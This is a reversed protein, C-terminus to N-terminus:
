PSCPEPCYLMPCPESWAGQLRPYTAPQSSSCRVEATESETFGTTGVSYVVLVQFGVLYM